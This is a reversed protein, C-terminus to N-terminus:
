ENVMRLNSTSNYIYIYQRSYSQFLYTLISVQMLASPPFRQGRLISEIHPQQPLDSYTTSSFRNESKDYETAASFTQKSYSFGNNSTKYYSGTNDKQNTNQSMAKDLGMETAFLDIYLFYQVFYMFMIEVTLRIYDLLVAM